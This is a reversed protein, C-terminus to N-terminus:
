FKNDFASHTRSMPLSASLLLGYITATTSNYPVCFVRGDPLLVGGVFAGSGSYTGSPTTVTDTAPNYIRATTSYYPVCFVRGDPLLVGSFFARSGPYTGSPTTVIDSLTGYNYNRAAMFNAVPELPFYYNPFSSNKGLVVVKTSTRM